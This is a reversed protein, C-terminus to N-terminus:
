LTQLRFFLNNGTLWNRCVLCATTQLPFLVAADTDADVLASAAPEMESDDYVGCLFDLSTHLARAIRAALYIGPEKHIGREIRWITQYSTEAREALEQQSWGRQERVQTVRRAFIPLTENRDM